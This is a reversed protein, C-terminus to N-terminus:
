GPKEVTARMKIDKKLDLLTVGLQEVVYNLGFDDIYIPEGVRIQLPNDGYFQATFHLRGGPRLMRVLKRMVALPKRVHEFAEQFIIFDVAGPPVHVDLDELDLDAVAADLGLEDIMFEVSPASLELGLSRIESRDQKILFLAQGAGCAADVIFRTDTPFMSYYSNVHTRFEDPGRKRYSAIKSVDKKYSAQDDSKPNLFVSHCDSCIDFKYIQQPVQLTPLYNLYTKHMPSGPADLYVTQELRNQPLRWIEGIEEGGCVPCTSLRVNGALRFQKAFTVFPDM